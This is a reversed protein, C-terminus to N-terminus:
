LRGSVAEIVQRVERTDVSAFALVDFIERSLYLSGHSLSEHVVNKKMTLPFEKDSERYTASRDAAAFVLELQEIASLASMM